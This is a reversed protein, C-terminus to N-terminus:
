AGLIRPVSSSLLANAILTVILWAALMFFIGKAVSFLMERAKTRNGANDGSTMLLFGAYAIPIVTLSLVIIMIKNTFNTVAAILDNFTCNGYVANAGTGAVCEYTLGNITGQASVFVPSFFLSVLCFGVLLKKKFFNM